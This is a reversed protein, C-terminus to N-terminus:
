MKYQRVFESIFIAGAQAVNLSDFSRMMPIHLLTDCRKGVQLRIGHDENGLVLVAPTHLKVDFVSRSESTCMAGYVQFGHERAIDLSRSLNTVRSLSLRELAGAAARRAGVGLFAANHKPVILGVGGLAYLTRALTGVNGPDQVQDLAVVLPVPATHVQSLLAELEIFRTGLLRAIVGQHNVRQETRALVRELEQQDCLQFRIGALRCLDLVRASEHHAGRRLYVTDIRAPDQELLELVPKYGCLFLEQASDDTDPHTPLTLRKETQATLASETNKKSEIRPKMAKPVTSLSSKTFSPAESHKKNKSKKRSFSYSM